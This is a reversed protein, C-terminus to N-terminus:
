SARPGYHHRPNKFGGQLLEEDGPRRGKRPRPRGEAVRQRANRERATPRPAWDRQRKMQKSFFQSELRGLIKAAAAGRLSSRGLNRIDNRLEKRIRQRSSRKTMIHYKIAAKVGSVAHRKALKDGWTAKSHDEAMQMAFKSDMNSRKGGSMITAYRVSKVNGDKDAVLMKGNTTWLRGQRRQEGGLYTYTKRGPGVKVEDGPKIKNGNRGLIEQNKRWAIRSNRDYMIKQSHDLQERASKTGVRGAVYVAGAGAAAAVAIKGSRTRLVKGATRGTMRGINSTVSSGGGLAESAGAVAKSAVKLGVKGTKMGGIVAGRHVARGARTASQVKPKGMITRIARAQNPTLRSGPLVAGQGRTTRYVGGGAIKLTTASKGTPYKPSTMQKWSKGVKAAQAAKLAAKAM